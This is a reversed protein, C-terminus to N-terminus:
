DGGSRSACSVRKYPFEARRSKGNQSGAIWALLADEKLQYGVQQPFDHSPDEFVVQSSSVTTSRFTAVPQGSPHAEYALGPGDERILVMEYAVLKGGRVTRSMGIMSRARPAMWQEEVTREPSSLEWCGQLWAVRQIGQPQAIVAASFIVLVAALSVPRTM